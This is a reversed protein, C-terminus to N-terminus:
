VVLLGRLRIVICKIGHLFTKISHHDKELHMSQLSILASLNACIKFRPHCISQIGAFVMIMVLLTM